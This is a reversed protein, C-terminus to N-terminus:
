EILPGIYTMVAEIVSKILFFAVKTSEWIFQMVVKIDEGYKAWFALLSTLIEQVNATISAGNEKWYARIFELATQVIPILMAFFNSFGDIV